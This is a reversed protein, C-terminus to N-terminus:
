LIVIWTLAWWVVNLFTFGFILRLVIRALKAAEANPLGSEVRYPTAFPVEVIGIMPNQLEDNEELVEEPKARLVVVILAVAAILLGLSSWALARYVRVWSCKDYIVHRPSIYSQSLSSPYECACRAEANCGLDIWKKMDSPTNTEFGM